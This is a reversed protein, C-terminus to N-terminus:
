KWSVESLNSDLVLRRVVSLVNHIRSVKKNRESRLQEQEVTWRNHEQLLGRGPTKVPNRLVDLERVHDEETRKIQADIFAKRSEDQKETVAKPTVGPEKRWYIRAANKAIFMHANFSGFLKSDLTFAKAVSTLVNRREARCKKQLERLKCKM